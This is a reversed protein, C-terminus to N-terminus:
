VTSISYHEFVRLSRLTNWRSPQGSKEMEFHSQGAHRAQLPWTGDSRRKRLLVDLADDM